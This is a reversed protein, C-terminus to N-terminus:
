TLYKSMDEIQIATPKGGRMEIKFHKKNTEKKEKTHSASQVPRTCHTASTHSASQVLAISQVVKPLSYTTVKGVKREVVLLGCNVLKNVIYIVGRRSLGTMECFKNGSIKDSEKGWCITKRIVVFIIALEGADLKSKALWEWLKNNIKSFGDV